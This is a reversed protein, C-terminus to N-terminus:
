TYIGVTTPVENTTMELANLRGRQKKAEVVYYTVGIATIILGVAMAPIQDKLKVDEPLPQGDDGLPPDPGTLFQVFAIVLIAFDFIGHLAVAPLIARGLQYSPDLEVDRRAIGISQIAACISHIPLASRALLVSIETNALSNRSLSHCM